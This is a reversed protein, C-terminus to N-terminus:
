INANGAFRKTLFSNLMLLVLNTAVFLMRPKVFNKSEEFHIKALADHRANEMTPNQAYKFPDYQDNGSGAEVTKEEVVGVSEAVM